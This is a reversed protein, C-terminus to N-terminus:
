PLTSGLPDGAADYADWALCRPNTRFQPTPFGVRAAMRIQGCMVHDGIAPDVNFLSNDNVAAEALVPPYAEVPAILYGLQDDALGITWLRQAAVNTAEAVGAPINPYAEGPAGTVLLDGIRIASVYTRVTNGVTWPAKRSRAIPAGVASGQQTLAFLGPNTVQHRIFGKAAQVPGRVYPAGTLARTVHYALMTTYASKRDPLEYGPKSTDTFGCRPRCPQTRGVAGEFAIGVGGYTASLRDSMFQPWDGHLDSGGGLTAHASFAMTTTIVDGTAADTAQLVRLYRDKDEQGPNCPTNPYTADASQNLAELCNQNYVLDGADDSGARIVAPRRSNFAAVIADKTQAAVFALYTEPVFGWAGILDPGSHTHNHSIVINDAPLLGGLEASAAEAIDRTGYPGIEYAVFSGQTEVTVLAIDEVVLARAAIHESTTRRKSGPGIVASPIVSGDGLGSGGVNVIEASDISRTAAGVLYTQPAEASAAPLAAVLLSAVAISRLCRRM